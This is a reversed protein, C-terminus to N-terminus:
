NLDDNGYLRKKEDETVDSYRIQLHFHFEGGLFSHHLCTVRGDDRPYALNISNVIQDVVEQPYLWRNVTGDYYQNRFDVARHVPHVGSEFQVPDSVRTVVPNIQHQLSLKEFLECVRKLKDPLISYQNAYQPLKFIM